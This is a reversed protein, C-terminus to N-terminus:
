QTFSGVTQMVLPEEINRFEYSVRISIASQNNM